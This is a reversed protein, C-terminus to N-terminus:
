VALTTEARRCNMRPAVCLMQIWNQSCMWWLMDVIWHLTRQRCSQAFFWCAHLVKTDKAVKTPWIRPIATSEPAWVLHITLSLQSALSGQCQQAWDKSKFPFYPCIRLCLSPVDFVLFVFFRLSVLLRVSPSLVCPLSSPELSLCSQACSSGSCWKPMNPSSRCIRKCLHSTTTTPPLAQFWLVARVRPVRANNRSTCKCLLRSKLVKSLILLLEWNEMALLAWLALRLSTRSHTDVADLNIYKM